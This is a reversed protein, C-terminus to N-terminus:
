SGLGFFVGVALEVWLAAFFLALAGVAAVRQWPRWRAVRRATRLCALGAGALLLAAAAFDSGSWVVQHTFQMAVLPVLLIMATALGVRLLDIRLTGKHALVDPSDATHM